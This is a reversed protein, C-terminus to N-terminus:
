LGTVRVEGFTKSCESCQYNREGDHRVRIHKMLDARISFVYWPESAPVPVEANPNRLVFGGL